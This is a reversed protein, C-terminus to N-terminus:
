YPEFRSFVPQLTSLVDPMTKKACLVLLAGVLLSTNTISRNANVQFPGILVVKNQALGRMITGCLRHICAISLPGYDVSHHELDEMGPLSLFSDVSVGRTAASGQGLMFKVGSAPGESEVFDLSLDCM